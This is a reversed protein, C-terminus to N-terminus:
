HFRETGIVSRKRCRDDNWYGTRDRQTIFEQHVDEPLAHNIKLLLTSEQESLVSPRRRVRVAITRSMLTELDSESLAGWKASNM